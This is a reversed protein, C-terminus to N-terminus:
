GGMRVCEVELLVDDIEEFSLDTVERGLLASAGDRVLRDLHFGEYTNNKINQAAAAELLEIVVQELEEERNTM